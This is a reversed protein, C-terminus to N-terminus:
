AGRAHLWQVMDLNGSRSANTIVLPDFIDAGQAHLWQVLELNGSRAAYMIVELASIDVDRSHLWQVLELNGSKAANKIVVPNSIGMSSLLFKLMELNGNKKENKIVVPNSTDICPLLLESYDSYCCMTARRTAGPDFIDVDRAHLWKVGELDGQNALAEFGMHLWYTYKEGLRRAYARVHPDDISSFVKRLEELSLVNLIEYQIENPLMNINCQEDIPPYVISREVM